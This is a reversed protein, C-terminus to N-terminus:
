FNKLIIQRTGIYRASDLVPRDVVPREFGVALEVAAVHPEVRHPQQAVVAVAVDVVGVVDVLEVVVRGVRVLEGVEGGLRGRGLRQPGYTWADKTTYSVFPQMFTSNVEARDPAGAYSWLHNALIGVTWGGQQTLVVATPGAGWKESSLLQETGTPVLLVL